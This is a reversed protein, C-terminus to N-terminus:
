EDSDSSDDSSDDGFDESDMEENPQFEPETAKQPRSEEVPGTAPGLSQGFGVKQLVRTVKIHVREGAKTNPVFLVFGKHKAVGDGKEGVAEITVDLEEGEKVPPSLQRNSFGGGYGGGRGGGFNRDGYM